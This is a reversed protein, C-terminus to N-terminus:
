RPMARQRGRSAGASAMKAVPIVRAAGGARCGAGAGEGADDRVALGSRRSARRREGAAARRCRSAAQGLSRPRRAERRAIRISGLNGCGASSTASFASPSIQASGIAQTLGLAAQSAPACPEASISASTLRPSSALIGPAYGATAEIELARHQQAKRTEATRRKEGNVGVGRRV